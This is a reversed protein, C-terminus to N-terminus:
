IVRVKRLRISPGGMLVPIGQIPDGKGCNGAFLQLNDGVADISQYLKPTTIELVANKVPKTIQGNEILYAESGTYKQNFRKDDINWEMFSKIYVGKKVGEVLEEESYKGPLMFTNSMRVLPEMNYNCARAAGNSMVGMQRSTSRDHMFEKIKGNEIMVKRKGKVGEDDFKYFGYSGELSPDDVVTVCDSGIREGVMSEKIFSEGAQAAERGAIRDAEYPHGAAEHVAIGTIEPACVVDMVGNAKVGEKMNRKLEKIERLLEEDLDWSKICEYGGVGGHQLWRQVGKGNQSLNLFYFMGVRPIESYVNVGESNVYFKRIINDSLSIYKSDTKVLKDVDKIIKLKESPDVNLINQKQVVKFKDNVEKSDSFSINEGIKSGSRTLRLAREVVDRIENKSLKNTTAFGMNGNLIFRIGIGSSEDFGSVEPNGNKLVFGSGEHSEMRAEVYSAGKGQLHKIAFGALDTDM